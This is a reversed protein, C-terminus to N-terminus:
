WWHMCMKKILKLALVNENERWTSWKM